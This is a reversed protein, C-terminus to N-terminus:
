KSVAKQYRWTSQEQATKRKHCNGCLVQCKALEKKLKAITMKSDMHAKGVNFLKKGKIHDFELVLVDPEDCIACKSKSLVNFVYEKVRIGRESHWKKKYESNQKKKIPLCTNCTWAKGKFFKVLRTKNCMNCQRHTTAKPEYRNKNYANRCTKCQSSKGHKGLKNAYFSELSKRKGCKSCQKLM